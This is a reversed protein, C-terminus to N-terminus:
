VQQFVRQLLQFALLLLLLFAQRPELVQLLALLALQILFPLVFLALQTSARVFLIQRVSFPLLAQQLVLVQRRLSSILAQELLVVLFSPLLYINYKMGM